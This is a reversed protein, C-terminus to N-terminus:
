LLMMYIQKVELLSVIAFMIMVSLIMMRKNTYVDITNHIFLPVIELSLISHMLTFSLVVLIEVYSYNYIYLYILSVLGIILTIHKSKIFKFSMLVQMMVVSTLSILVEMYSDYFLLSTLILAAMYIILHQYGCMFSIVLMSVVFCLSTDYMKVLSLLITLGFIAVYVMRINKIKTKSKEVSLDM